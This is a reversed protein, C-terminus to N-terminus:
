TPLGNSVAFRDVLACERQCIWYVVKNSLRNKPDRVSGSWGSDASHDVCRRGITVVATRASRASAQWADLWLELNAEVAEKMIRKGEASSRAVTPIELLQVDLQLQLVADRVIMLIGQTILGWMKKERASTGVAARCGAVQALHNLEKIRQEGWARVDFARLEEASYVMEVDEFDDYQTATAM